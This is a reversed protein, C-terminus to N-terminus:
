AVEEAATEVAADIGLTAADDSGDEDATNSTALASLDLVGGYGAVDALETPAAVVTAEEKVKKKPGGNNKGEPRGLDKTYEPRQTTWYKKADNYPGSACGMAFKEEVLRMVERRFETDGKETRLGINAEFAEIAFKKIGKTM